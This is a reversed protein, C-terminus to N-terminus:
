PWQECPEGVGPSLAMCDLRMVLARAPRAVETSRASVAAQPDPASSSVVAPSVGCPLTSSVKQDQAGSISFTPSFHFPVWGFM